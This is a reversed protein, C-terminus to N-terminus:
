RFGMRGKPKPLVVHERYDGHGDPVLLHPVDDPKDSSVFGASGLSPTDPWWVDDDWAIQRPRQKPLVHLVKGSGMRPWM